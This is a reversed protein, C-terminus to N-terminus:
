SQRGVFRLWFTPCFFPLLWNYNTKENSNITNYLSVLLPLTLAHILRMPSTERCVESVEQKRNGGNGEVQPDAGSYNTIVFVNQVSFSLKMSTITNNTLKRALSTFDYGVNLNSLRLFDAKEIYNARFRATYALDNAIKEYEPTGVTANALATLQDNRKKLNDGLGATNYFAKTTFQLELLM